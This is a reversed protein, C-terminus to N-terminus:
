VSQIKTVNSQLVEKALFSNLAKMMRQTVSHERIKILMDYAVRWTEPKNAVQRAAINQISQLETVDGGDERMQDLIQRQYKVFATVFHRRNDSPKFSGPEFPHPILELDTLAAITDPSKPIFSQSGLVKHWTLSCSILDHERFITSGDVAPPAWINPLIPLPRNTPVDKMVSYLYPLARLVVLNAMRETQSGKPPSPCIPGALMGDNALASKHHIWIFTIKGNKMDVQHPPSPSLNM